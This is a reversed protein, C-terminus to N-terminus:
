CSYNSIALVQQWSRLWSKALPLAQFYFFRTVDNQRRMKPSTIEM